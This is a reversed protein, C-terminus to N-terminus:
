DQSATVSSITRLFYIYSLFLVVSSLKSFTGLLSNDIILGMSASVMGIAFIMSGLVLVRFADLAEERLFFKVMSVKEHDRFNELIELNLKIMFGFLLMGALGFATELLM